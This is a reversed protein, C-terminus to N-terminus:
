NDVFELKPYVNNKELRERTKKIELNSFFKDKFNNPPSSFESRKQGM